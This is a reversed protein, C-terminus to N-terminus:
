KADHFIVDEKGVTGDRAMPIFGQPSICFGDAAQRWDLHIINRGAWAAEGLAPPDNIWRASQWRM